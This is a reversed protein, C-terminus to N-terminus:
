YILYHGSTTIPFTISNTNTKFNITQNNHIIKTPTFNTTLTLQADLKTTDPYLSIIISPAPPTSNPYNPNQLLIFKPSTKTNLTLSMTETQWTTTKTLGGFIVDYPGLTLAEGNPTELHLTIQGDTIGTDYVRKGSSESGMFLEDSTKTTNFDGILGRPGKDSNYMFEYSIKPYTQWLSEPAKLSFLLTNRKNTYTLKLIPLQSPNLNPTPSTAPLATQQPKSPSSKTKIFIFGAILLVVTLITPIIIKTKTM